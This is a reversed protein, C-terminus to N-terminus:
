RSKTSCVAWPLWSSCLGLCKSPLFSHHRRAADIRLPGSPRPPHPVVTTAAVTNAGCRRRDLPQMLGGGSRVGTTDWASQEERGSEQAGAEGTVPHMSFPPQRCHLSSPCCRHISTHVYPLPPLPPLRLLTPRSLLHLALALVVTPLRRGPATAANIWLHLPDVATPIQPPPLGIVLRFQILPAAAACPLLSRVALHAWM